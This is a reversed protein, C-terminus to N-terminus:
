SESTIPNSASEKVMYRDVVARAHEGVVAVKKGEALYRRVYEAWLEIDQGAYVVCNAGQPPKGECLVIDPTVWVAETSLPM